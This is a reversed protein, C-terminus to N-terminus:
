SISAWMRCKTLMKTISIRIEKTKLCYIIPNVLSPLLNQIIAALTRIQDPIGSMGYSIFLFALVLFFVSIVLVHSACTSFAKSQGEISSIRLVATIIKGYSYLILSLQVSIIILSIGMNYQNHVSVDTCALLIIPAYNCCFYEIRNPGCFTATLVFYVHIMAEIIGVAWSLASLIFVHKTTMVTSYGLPNCIAQYRDYAMGVLTFAEAVLFSLYCYMQMICPGFAIFGDETILYYLMEPITVSPILLDLFALNCIFLYMPSHLAHDLKIIILFILNAIITVTYIVFFVIALAIREKWDQLGPIGAIIFHTISSATYNQYEM